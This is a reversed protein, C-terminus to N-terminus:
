QWLMPAIAVSIGILGALVSQWLKLKYRVLYGEFSMALVSLGLLVSLFTYTTMLFSAHSGIILDPVLIFFFPMVFLGMGLRMSTFGVRFVSPVGAVKGATISSLAVPPVLFSLLGVYFCFLHSPVPAYGSAILAPALTVALVIYLATAPMGIGLVYGVVAGMLPVLFPLGGAMDVMNFSLTAATGTLTLSGTLTGLTYLLVFIDAILGFANELMGWITKLSMRTKLRLTSIVLVSLIAVFPAQSELHLLAVFWFLVAVSAFYPLGDILCSWFNPIEEKDMRQFNRRGAYSDAQVFLLVYYVIAPLLAAKCLDWYPMQLMSAMIFVASGMVPPVLSGGTSACAEVAAAYAPAYGSRKMAKITFVGTTLINPIPAGSLMGFMGSGVVAVKASGGRTRGFLSLAIDIFFKGGGSIQLMGAFLLYGVLIKGCTAGVSGILSEHSFVHFSMVRSFSFQLGRLPGPMYSSFIPEFMFFVCISFLIMGFSRRTGELLVLLLLFGGILMPTPAGLEWGEMYIEKAHFAVYTGMALGLGGMLLDYWPVVDSSYKGIRHRIFLIPISLGLLINLYFEELMMVLNFHYLVALVIISGGLLGVITRILKGQLHLGIM